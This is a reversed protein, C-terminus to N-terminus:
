RAGGVPEIGHLFSQIAKIAEYAEREIRAFEAPNIHGDYAADNFAEVVQGFEAVANLAASKAHDLCVPGKPLEILACGMVQALHHLPELSGTTRMLPVLLEVGVKAGADEPNLERLLTNYPKGIAEAVAKAPVPGSVVLEHIIETLSAM